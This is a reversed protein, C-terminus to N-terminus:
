KRLPPVNEKFFGQNIVNVVPFYRAVAFSSGDSLSSKRVSIKKTNKWVRVTFHGTGSTFGPQQFDYNKIESHWRGAM